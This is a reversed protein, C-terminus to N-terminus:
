LAGTIGVARLACRFALRSESIAQPQYQRVYWDTVPSHPQATITARIARVAAAGHERAQAALPPHYHLEPRDAWRHLLALSESRTM